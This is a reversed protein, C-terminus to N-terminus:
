RPRVRTSCVAGKCPPIALSRAIRSRQAVTTSCGVAEAPPIAASRVTPSHSRRGTAPISVVPMTIVSTNGSITSDVLTLSSNYCVYIGGGYYYSVNGTIDCAAVTANGSVYLGGGDYGFGGTITMGSITLRATNSDVEFVSGDDGHIALLDAGPGDIAIPVYYDSYLEIPGNTLTITAPASGLDFEITTATTSQEALDVAWRLTGVSGDDATSDVILIPPVIPQYPQNQFAGIDPM